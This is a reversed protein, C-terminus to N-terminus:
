WVHASLAVPLTDQQPCFVDPSALGGGPSKRATLAPLAKVHPIPV